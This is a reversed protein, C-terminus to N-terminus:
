NSHSPRGPPVPGGFRRVTPEPDAAEPNRDGHVAYKMGVLAGAESAPLTKVGPGPGQSTRVGVTVYITILPEAPPSNADGSTVSVQAAPKSV